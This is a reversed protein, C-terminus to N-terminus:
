RGATDTAWLAGNGAKNANYGYKYIVVNGDDQVALHASLNDKTNSAWSVRPQNRLTYM